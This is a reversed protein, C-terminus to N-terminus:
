ESKVKTILLLHIGPRKNLNLEVSLKPSAQLERIWNSPAIIWVRPHTNLYELVLQVPYPNREFDLAIQYPDRKWKSMGIYYMACPIDDGYYKITYFMNRNGFVIIIDSDKCEKTM